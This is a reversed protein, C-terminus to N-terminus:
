VALESWQLLASIAAPFDSPNNVALVLIDTGSLPVSQGVNTAGAAYYGTGVISGGTVGVDSPNAWRGVQAASAPADVDTWSPDITLTPNILLRWSGYAGATINLISLSQVTLSGRLIRLAFLPTFDGSSEILIPEITDVAFQLPSQLPSQYCTYDCGGVCNITSNTISGATINDNCIGLVYADCMQESSSSDVEMAM